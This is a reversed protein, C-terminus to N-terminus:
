SEGGRRLEGALWARAFRWDNAVTARSVGLVDAVAENSLGGFFRLTVVRAQRPDHAALRQLAEDLDVVDLDTGSPAVAAELTVRDWDGGRKHAKRRRAAVAFFHDRGSWDAGRDDALRMFAEHVLATPQLTHAAGQRDFYARALRRLEEYVLPLLEQAAPGDPGDLRDLIKTVQAQNKTV